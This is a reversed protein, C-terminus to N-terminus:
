IHKTRSLESIGGEHDENSFSGDSIGKVLNMNEDQDIRNYCRTQMYTNFNAIVPSQM